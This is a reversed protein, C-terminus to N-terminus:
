FEGTCDVSDLEMKFSRLRTSRITPPNSGAYSLAQKQAEKEAEQRREWKM